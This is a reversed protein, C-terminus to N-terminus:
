PTKYITAFLPLILYPLSLAKKLRQAHIYIFTHAPHTSPYSSTNHTSTWIKIIKVCFHSRFIPTSYIYPMRVWM